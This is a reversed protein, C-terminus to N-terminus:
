FQFRVGASLLDAKLSVGDESVVKGFHEYEVVLSLQKNIAYSAGIGALVSTNKAKDSYFFDRDSAFVDTRTHAAGVKVFGNIVPTLPMTGTVAVYFSEPEAGAAYGGGVIKSEGLIAYGAEVGVVPTVQYGGVIKTATDNDSLSVGGASLKQEARGVSGGIYANGAFAPAAIAAAILTLVLQKM